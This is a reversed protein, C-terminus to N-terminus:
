YTESGSMISDGLELLERNATPTSMDSYSIGVDVKRGSRSGTFRMVFGYHSVKCMGVLANVAPDDSGMTKVLDSKIAHQNALITSMGYLNEDVKIIAVLNDNELRYATIDMGQTMPTPLQKSDIDIRLQMADRLATTPDTDIEQLMDEIYYKTMECTFKVGNGDVNDLRLGLGDGTIQELLKRGSEGSELFSILLLDRAADPSKSLAESDFSGPKFKFKLVVFYDELKAGTMEGTGGAIPMPCANNLQEVQSSIEGHSGKRAMKVVQSCILIAISVLVAITMQSMKGEPPQSSTTGMSKTGMEEAKNFCLRALLLCIVILGIAFLASVSGSYLTAGGGVIAYLTLIWGIVKLVIKM